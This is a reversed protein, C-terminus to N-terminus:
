TIPATLTVGANTIPLSAFALVTIPARVADMGTAVPGFIAAARQKSDRKPCWPPPYVGSKVCQEM